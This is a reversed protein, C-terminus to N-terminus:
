IGHSRQTSSRGISQLGKGFRVDRGHGRTKDRVRVFEVLWADKFGFLLMWIQPRHAEM